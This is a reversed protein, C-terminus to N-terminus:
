VGPVLAAKAAVREYTTQAVKDRVYRPLAQAADVALGQALAAPALLLMARATPVATICAYPTGGGVVGQLAAAYEGFVNGAVCWQGLSQANPQLATLYDALVDPAILGSEQLTFWRSGEFAYTAAYLENMRADLLATVVGRQPPTPDCLLAEQAVVQLSDM